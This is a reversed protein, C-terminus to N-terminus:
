QTTEPNKKKHQAIYLDNPYNPFEDRSQDCLKCLCKKGNQLNDKQKLLIYM